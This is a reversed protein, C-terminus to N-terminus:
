ASATYSWTERSLPASQRLRPVSKSESFGFLHEPNDLVAMRIAQEGDLWDLVTDLLADDDPYDETRRALNHPWNTGWVIREPAHAAVDRAVAAVDTYNPGGTRSSEYCGAFKFWCRGGDILRKM